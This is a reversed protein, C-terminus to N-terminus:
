KWPAFIIFREAERKCNLFLVQIKYVIDFFAIAKNTYKNTVQQEKACFAAVILKLVEV